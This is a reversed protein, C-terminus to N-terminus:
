LGTGKAQKSGQYKPWTFTFCAGQQKKPNSSIELIGGNADIAKKVLALGMGNGPAKDKRQLKRFPMLIKEHFKPDIGPGDDEVSFRWKEGMDECRVKITGEDRDHHKVANEILNRFVLLIPARLAVIDGPITGIDLAMGNPKSIVEFMGNLVRPLDILEASHQSSGARSYELLDSLMSGLHDVQDKLRDLHEQIQTRSEAPTDEEIWNATHEIGRLPGTLDHSVIHAFQNLNENIRVLELNQEALAREARKQDTVDFVVSFSRLQASDAGPGTTGSHVVDILTGDHKVYTYQVNDETEGAFLKAVVERKLALSDPSMFEYIKRGILDDREYGMKNCWYDSVEVIEGDELISHLMVPTNRYILTLREQERLLRANVAELEDQAQRLATIDSAVVQFEAVESGRGAIASRVVRFCRRAGSQDFTYREMTGTEGPNLSEGHAVAVERDSEPAIEFLNRGVVANRSVNYFQCFADNAFTIRFDPAYRVIIDSQQEVVSQYLRKQEDLQYQAEQLDQIDIVTVVAGVNEERATKYPLIRLLFARGDVQIEKEKAEGGSCVADIDDILRDYSFRYTIHGLPRGTDHPVLNFTRAAAPTFRRINKDADVFITGIDTATLLNDMDETLETLEEIKRQHEASVTYLEENVSHLEENTSQLEENSAMLEENTAQLEENSTELEEITSQLNEETTRLDRELESIRQAFFAHDAEGVDIMPAAPAAAPKEARLTVLRFDAFAPNDGLPEVTVTVTKRVGNEETALSNRQFPISRQASTRELGANVVVRLDQPLLEILRRSFLGSGVKIYNSADGFIHVVEGSRDVLFGAPAYKALVADYARLLIQRVAPSSHAELNHLRRSENLRAHESRADSGSYSLPLLETSERLRVDSSKRFIRWKKSKTEFEGALEGTTESPGLFLIGGERLAFHFLALVKRQAIDDLYILLNRCSVLDIRTFPPDKILNHPSFVILKRLSQKVQFEGNISDFYREILEGSLARLNEPSYIGASAVDLSNFHIDTAFIKANLTLGNQRAYESLLIAISYPEEGSACGAVWVRVARQDSMQDMLDPLSSRALSDFAERDRFFSTVGILLDCYLLELEDPETKVLEAYDEISRTHSLLARRRIRRGVTSQKYYGFDAGYRRQLLSTILTVPDDDEPVIEPAMEINEGRMLRALADPMESPATILSAIGRDVASRPMSDFKALAPDQVILTGGADRIAQGGRTGDSGTGSFIIGIADSGRDQALSSFFTDIPLGLIEPDGHERTYLKGGQITLDTRPPNLYVVNAEIKMENVAHRIMMTSHRALLQDMMSKFDPSLHQVVVIALGSDTPMADFFQEIPELGGASAGIAVVRIRKAM